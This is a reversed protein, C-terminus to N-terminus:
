TLEDTTEKLFYNFGTTDKFVEPARSPGVEPKRPLSPAAVSKLHSFSPARVAPRAPIARSLATLSPLKPAGSSPKEDDGVFPVVALLCGALVVAAFAPRLAPRLWHSHSERSALEARVRTALFPSASIAKYDRKLDGLSGGNDPTEDKM